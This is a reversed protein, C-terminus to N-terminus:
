EKDYNDFYMDLFVERYLHVNGKWKPNDIPREEINENLEVALRCVRGGLEKGAAKGLYDYLSLMIHPKSSIDILITKTTPSRGM